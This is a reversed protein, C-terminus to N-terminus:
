LLPTVFTMCREAEQQWADGDPTWRTGYSVWVELGDNESRSWRLSHLGTAPRETARYEAGVNQLAVDGLQLHLAAIPARLPRDVSLRLRADVVAVASDNGLLGGLQEILWEVTLDDERRASYDPPPASAPKREYTLHVLLYKEGKHEDAKPEYDRDIHFWVYYNRNEDRPLLGCDVLRREKGGPFKLRQAMTAVQDLRRKTQGLLLLFGLERLADAADM